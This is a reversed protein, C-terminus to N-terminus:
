GPQAEVSSTESGGSEFAGSFGNGWLNAAVVEAYFFVFAGIIAGLFPIINLAGGIVSAIIFVVVSLLWHVFYERNLAVQKVTTFDFADTFEDTRAFNVLGVVAFYGFVLSLVISLGLGGLLSAAGLAQGAQSGTAMAGISGGVTVLAVIIPVLLYIIGIIWGLVGKRLLGGWDTFVPPETKGELTESIATIVYGYVVIAPIILFSFIFLVGGIALTKLWDDQETPYRLSQEFTVM